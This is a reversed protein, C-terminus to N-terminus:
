YLRVEWYVTNYNPLTGWNCDFTTFEVVHDKYNDLLHWLWELSNPCMFFRLLELAIIGQAIESKLVLAERMPRKVRSYLLYLGNTWRMVEGQIETHQTPCMESIYLTEPAVGTDLVEQWVRYLMVGPVNYYTPGGAVRNRIHYLGTYPYGREARWDAVTDWTPSHNGFENAAYRVVFDAKTLVPKTMKKRRLFDDSAGSM